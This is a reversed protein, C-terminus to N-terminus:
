GDCGAVQLGAMVDSASDTHWFGLAHGLEHSVMRPSAESVGPCRCHNDTRYFFTIKGPNTGVPAKGCFTGDPEAQWFIADSVM